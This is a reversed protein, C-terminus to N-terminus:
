MIFEGRDTPRSSFRRRVRQIRSTACGPPCRPTRAPACRPPPPDDFKEGDGLYFTGSLVTVREWGPHWHPAIRYGAPFRARVAFFGPKPMDGELVAIQAGPPLSPPAPEWKLQNPMLITHKEASSKTERSSGACGCLAAILLVAICRRNM